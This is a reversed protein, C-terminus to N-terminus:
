FVAGPNEVQLWMRVETSLAVIAVAADAAVQRSLATPELRASLRVEDLEHWRRHLSLPIDKPRIRTLPGHVVGSVRASIAEEGTALQEVATSLQQYANLPDGVFAAHRRAERQAERRRSREMSEEIERAHKLYRELDFRTWRYPRRAFPPPMMVGAAVDSYIAAEPRRLVASIDSLKLIVPLEALDTVPPTVHGTKIRGEAARESTRRVRGWDRAVRAHDALYQVVDPRRWRNRSFPEPRMQRNAIRRRVAEPTVGLIGAVEELTMVLPWFRSDDTQNPMGGIGLGHLGRAIRAARMYLSVCFLLM